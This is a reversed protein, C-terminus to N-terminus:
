PCSQWRSGWCSSVSAGRGAWCLASGDTRLGWVPVEGGPGAHELGMRREKLAAGAWRLPCRRHCHGPTLLSLLVQHGDRGLQPGPSQARHACTDGATDWTRFGPDSLSLVGCVVHYWLWPPHGVGVRPEAWGPGRSWGGRVCFPSLPWARVVAQWQGRRLACPALTWGSLLIGQGHTPARPLREWQGHVHGSGRGYGPSM